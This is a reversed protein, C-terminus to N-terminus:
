STATVDHLHGHSILIAKLNPESYNISKLVKKDSSRVVTFLGDVEVPETEIGQEAYKQMTDFAELNTKCIKSMNSRQVEAFLEEFLVPSFGYARVAGSIVYQLDCLADAVEVLDNAAAAASLELNEEFILEHRLLQIAVSPITPVEPMEQGMVKMFTSVQHIM